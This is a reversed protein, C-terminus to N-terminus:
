LYRKWPMRQLPIDGDKINVYLVAWVFKVTINKNAMNVYLKVKVYDVHINIDRMSVFISKNLNVCNEKSENSDNKISIELSKGPTKNDMHWDFKFRDFENMGDCLKLYLTVKNMRYYGKINKEKAMSKLDSITYEFRRTM